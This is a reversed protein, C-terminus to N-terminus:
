YTVTPTNPYTFPYAPTKIWPAGVVPKTNEGRNYIRIFEAIEQPTGTITVGNITAIM